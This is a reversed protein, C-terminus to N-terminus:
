KRIINHNKNGFDRSLIVLKTDHNYQKLFSSIYSIGLQTYVPNDLPKEVSLPSEISYIFLIKM